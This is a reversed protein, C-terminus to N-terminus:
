WLCLSPGREQQHAGPRRLSLLCSPSSSLSFCGCRRSRRRYLLFVLSVSICCYRSLHTATERLVQKAAMMREAATRTRRTSSFFATSIIYQEYRGDDRAAFRQTILLRSRLRATPVLVYAALRDIGRLQLVLLHQTQKCGDINYPLLCCRCYNFHCCYQQVLAVALERISM